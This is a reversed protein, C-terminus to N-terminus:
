ESENKKYDGLVDLNPLSKKIDDIGQETVSTNRLVIYNMNPVEKLYSLSNDTFGLGSVQLGFRQPLKNLVLWNDDPFTPNTFHVDTIRSLAKDYVITELIEMKPNWFVKGGLFQIQEAAYLAQQHRSIERRVPKYLLLFLIIIVCSILIAFLKFWFRKKTLTHSNIEKGDNTMQIETQFDM